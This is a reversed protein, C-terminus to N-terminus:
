ACVEVNLNGNLSSLVVRVGGLLGPPLAAVSAYQDAAVGEPTAGYAFSYGPTMVRRVERVDVRRGCASPSVRLRGTANLQHFHGCWVLDADAIEALRALQTGAGAKSGHHAFVVYRGLKRDGSTLRYTAFGAYGAPAPCGKGIRRRLADLLNVGARKQLAAEHNGHGLYDLLGARAAPTLLDAAMAVAGDIPADTHRLSEHLVTPAYRPDHAVIADFVDGNVLVRDRRRVAAAVDGRIRSYDVNSAGVHLDSMLWLGRPKSLDLPPPVVLSLGGLASLHKM